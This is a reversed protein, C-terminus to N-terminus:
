INAKLERRLKDVHKAGAIAASFSDKFRRPRGRKDVLYWDNVLVAYPKQGTFDLVPIIENM